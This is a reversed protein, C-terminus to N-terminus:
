AKDPIKDLLKYAVVGATIIGALPLVIPLAAAGVTASGFSTAVALVPATISGLTGTSAAAGLVGGAAAGAKIVSNHM